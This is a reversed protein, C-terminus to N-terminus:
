VALDEGQIRIEPIVIITIMMMAMDEKIKGKDVKGIEQKIITM